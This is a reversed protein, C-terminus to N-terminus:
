SVVLRVQSVCSCRGLRCAIPTKKKKKKPNCSLQRNRELLLAKLVGSSGSTRLFLPWIRMCYANLGGCFIGMIPSAFRESGMVVLWCCSTMDHGQYHYAVFAFVLAYPTGAGVFAVRCSSLCSPRSFQRALCLFHEPIGLAHHSKKKKKKKKKQSPFINM